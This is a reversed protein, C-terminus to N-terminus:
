RRVIISSAQAPLEFEVLNGTVRIDKANGLRDALAVINSRSLSSIDFSFSGPKADNNFAVIAFEGRSTRAFAYQHEKAFLEVLSGHRLPEIQIRLQSLLKQNQFASNQQANRNTFADGADGPFGGPFDRRNDPDDGGQMAIEDGYYFQPTGRVTMLFTQAMKLGEITAGPENMFRKVDHNAMFTVLVSANPYLPDSALIRPLERIDKSEAFARRLAFMLPFDFLTDLRDDIGDARAVGGQFFSTHAVDGDFVEGVVNLNPYERKIAAMWHPWFTRPM